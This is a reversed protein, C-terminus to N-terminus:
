IRKIGRMGFLGQPRIIMVSVMLVYPLVSSFQDIHPNIYSSAVQETLGILLAATFAGAISDLGGLLVIPLARILVYTGMGGADSYVATYRSVLIGGVAAAICGVIWAIAYIQKVNIGLSQSIVNDESVCRMALGSKTFRFYFVFILFMCTAVIFSVLLEWSLNFSGIVNIRGQDVFGPEPIFDPMYKQKGEFVLVTLGHLVTFGLMLTALFTKLEDHGIMGKFFLWHLGLGFAAAALILIPLAAWPPLDYPSMLWWAFYTLFLLIGGHAMNFIRTSKYVVVIGLAALSYVGGWILGTVITRVAKEISSDSLALVIYLACAIGAAMIISFPVLFSPTRLKEFAIRIGAGPLAALRRIIYKEQDMQEM